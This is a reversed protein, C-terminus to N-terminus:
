YVQLSYSFIINDKNLLSMHCRIWTIIYTIYKTCKSENYTILPNNIDIESKKLVIPIKHGRYQIQSHINGWSNLLFFQVTSSIKYPDILPFRLVYMASLIKSM